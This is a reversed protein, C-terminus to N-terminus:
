PHADLRKEVTALRAECDQRLAEPLALALAERYAEDAEKWRERRELIVGTQFRAPAHRPDLELVRGFARHAEDLRRQGQLFLGRNYHAQTFAPDVEVAHDFAKLAEVLKGKKQLALGLADWAKAHRPDKKVIAEFVPITEEWKELSQLLLGRGWQAEDLGPELALAREYAKLAEEPKGQALLAGARRLHIGAQDPDGALARDFAELAEPLRGQAQLVEGRLRWAQLYTPDIGIAQDCAALAEEPKGQSALVGGRNCHAQALSPDLALARDYAALADGPRGMGQLLQGRRHHLQAYDPDIALAQECLKLADEPHVLRESASRLREAEGRRERLAAEAQRASEAQQRLAAEEQAKRLAEVARREAALARDRETRAQQEAVVARNQDAQAAEKAKVAEERQLVAVREKVLLRWISFSGFVVLLVLGGAVSVALERHRSVWKQMRYVATDPHAEVARGALFKRVDEALAHASAYRHASEKRLAKLIVAELDPAMRVRTSPLPVDQEVVAKMLAYSDEAQFPVEGTVMEYLIVGLAYVDTRVDIDRTRGQAQEPAMYAPTGMVAGSMTMLSAGEVADRALGFDLIVPRGTQTVLINAPKLDRHIVGKMHAYHMAECVLMFLGLKQRLTLGRQRVFDILTEGEVLDMTYYPSGDQIGIDHIPIIGPHSLEALIHAERLFRKQAQEGTWAGGIMMKLAVDRGLKPDRVRYVVGMGGRALEKLVEYPGVRRREPQPAPPKSAGASM